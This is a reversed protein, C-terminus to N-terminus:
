LLAASFLNGVCFYDDCVRWWARSFSNTRAENHSLTDKVKEMPTYYLVIQIM